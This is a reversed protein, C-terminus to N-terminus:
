SDNDISVLSRVMLPKRALDKSTFVVYLVTITKDQDISHNLLPRREKPPGM